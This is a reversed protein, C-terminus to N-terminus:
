SKKQRSMTRHIAKPKTSEKEPQVPIRSRTIKSPEYTYAFMPTHKGTHHAPLGCACATEKRLAALQESYRSISREYSECMANFYEKKKESAISYGAIFAGMTAIAFLLVYTEM